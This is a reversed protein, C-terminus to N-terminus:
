VSHSLKSEMDRDDHAVSESALRLRVDLPPQTVLSRIFVLLLAMVVLAGLTLTTAGLPPQWAGHLYDIPGTVGVAYRRLAQAFAAFDAVGIAICVMSALRPRLWRLADSREFLAIAMLPVGVAMPMIYRAQWVLGLRHVEDYSIIVPVLLVIMVLLVLTAVQRTKACALAILVVLGVAMYWVISTVFPVATDLWGFVGIM